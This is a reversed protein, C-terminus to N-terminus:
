NPNLSPEQIKIM